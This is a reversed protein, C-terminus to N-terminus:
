STVRPVMGTASASAATGAGRAPPGGDLWGLFARVQLPRALVTIRPDESREGVKPQADALVAIRTQVRGGADADLRQLIAAVDDDRAVVIAVPRQQSSRQALWADAAAFSQAEWGPQRQLLADILTRDDSTLGILPLPTAATAPPVTALRARHPTAIGPRAAENPLAPLRLTFVSGEGPRSTATITGGMATMLQRSLALGLGTGAIGRQDAHLRELPMFLRALDEDTMGSGSDAVELVGSDADSRWAIQVTGGRRNFKIANSLLNLLVQRLRKRDARLALTPLDDAVTVSVGAPALLPDILALAEEVIGAADVAEDAVSLEGSEATSLDLIDDILQLLHRAATDIQALARRVTAPDTAADLLQAHGIIANLPTRYEHSTRSLFRSKAENAARAETARAALLLSANRLREGLVGLEDRADDVPGLPRDHVLREANVALRRIRRLLDGLLLTVATASAILILVSAALNFRYSQETARRAARSFETVLAAERAHMEGLQGRLADLTGKSEILLPMLAPGATGADVMRVLRDLDAFKRDFLRAISQHLAMVNPDRIRQRMADLITQVGPRARDYPALFDRRGTLAYGRVALSSEVLLIHLAQIDNQISVVRGLEADAVDVRQHLRHGIGTSGLLIAAPLVGLALGKFWLPIDRWRRFRRSM